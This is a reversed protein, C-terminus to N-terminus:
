RKGFSSRHAYVKCSLLKSFLVSNVFPRSRPKVECTQEPNDGRRPSIIAKKLISRPCDEPLRVVKKPKRKRPVDSESDAEYDEDGSLDAKKAKRKEQRFPEMLVPVMTVGTKPRGISSAIPHHSTTAISINNFKSKETARYVRSPTNSTSLGRSSFSCENRMSSTACNNKYMRKNSDKVQWGQAEITLNGIASNKLPGFKPEVLRTVSTSKSAVSKRKVTSGKSIPKFAQRRREMNGDFPSTSSSSPTLHEVPLSCQKNKIYRQFTHNNPLMSGYPKEPMPQWQTGQEVKSATQQSSAQLLMGEIDRLQQQVSYLSLQGYSSNSSFTSLQFQSQLRNIIHVPLFCSQKERYQTYRDRIVDTNISERSDTSTSQSCTMKFGSAQELKSQNRSNSIPQLKAIERRLENLEKRIRDSEISSCMCSYDKVQTPQQDTSTITILSSHDTKTLNPGEVAKPYPENHYCHKGTCMGSCQPPTSDTYLGPVLNVIITPCCTFNATQTATSYTYKLLSSGSKASEKSTSKDEDRTAIIDFVYRNKRKLNELLTRDYDVSKPIEEESFREPVELEKQSAQIESSM